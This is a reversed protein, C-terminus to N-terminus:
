KKMWTSQLIGSNGTLRILYLGSAFESTNVKVTSLGQAVLEQYVVQGSMAIITVQEPAFSLNTAAVVMYDDGPNPFVNLNKRHAMEDIALVTIEACESTDVCAGNTLILAYNGSVTVNFVPNTADGVISSTSCNYWQFEGDNVATLKLGETTFEAHNQTITLDLTLITDGRDIVYSDSVTYTSDYLTYSNCASVERTIEVPPLKVENIYINDAGGGPRSAAGVVVFREGTYLMNFDSYFPSYTSSFVKCGAPAWDITTGDDHLKHAVLGGSAHAICMTNNSDLDFEPYPIYTNLNAVQVGNEQWLVVGNITFKQAYIASNGIVGPRSDAWTIYYNAGSKKLYFNSQNGEAATIVKTSNNWSQGGNSALFRRAYINTGSGETGGGVWVFTIGQEDGIASYNGGLGQSLITVNEWNLWQNVLDTTGGILMCYIGAGLGNGTTKYLYLKGQNDPSCGFSGYSGISGPSESGGFPWLLNGDADIKNIKVQNAGGILNGQSAVFYTDLSKVLRVGGISNPYSTQNRLKVTDQWLKQGEGDFRIAYVGNSEGQPSNIVSWAILFSGDGHAAAQYSNVSGRYDILLRGNKEWLPLGAASYHQAYVDNNQYVARDDTWFVYVGGAGDKLTQVGQQQNSTDCVVAPANPDSTWQAHLSGM